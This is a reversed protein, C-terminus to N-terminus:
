NGSGDGASVLVVYIGAQLDHLFGGPSPPVAVVSHLEWGGPVDYGALAAALTTPVVKVQQGSV